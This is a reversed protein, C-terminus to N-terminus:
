AVYFFIWSMFITWECMFFLMRELDESYLPVCESWLKWINKFSKLSWAHFRSFLCDYATCICRRPVVRRVNKQQQQL